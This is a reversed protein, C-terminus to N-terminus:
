LQRLLSKIDETILLDPFDGVFEDFIAKANDKQGRKLFILAIIIRNYPNSTDYAYKYLEEEDTKLAFFCDVLADYYIMNVTDKNIAGILARQALKYRGMKMYCRAINYLYTSSDPTQSTLNYAIEYEKLAAIYKKEDFYINGMNSHLRANKVPDIKQWEWADLGHKSNIAYVPNFFSFFLIILLFFKFRLKM